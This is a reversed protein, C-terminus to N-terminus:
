ILGRCKISFDIEFGPKSERKVHRNIEVNKYFPSAALNEIFEALIIEPPIKESYVKGELVYNADPDAPRFLLHVLRVEKPTLLSLEKLNLSLFTPTEIASELYTKDIAIQRKLLNYSKFAESNTFDTVQANLSVLEGQKISVAKNLLGWSGILVIALFALGAKAYNNVRFARHIRKAERPLVDAM